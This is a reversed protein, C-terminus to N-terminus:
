GNTMAEECRWDVLMTRSCYLSQVMIVTSVLGGQLNLSPDIAMSYCRPLTLFVTSQEGNQLTQMTADDLPPYHLFRLTHSQETLREDFFDAPLDLSYTFIRLIM